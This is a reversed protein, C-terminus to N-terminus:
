SGDSAPAVSESAENARLRAVAEDMSHGPWPNTEVEHIEAPTLPGGPPPAIEGSDIESEIGKEFGVEMKDTEYQEVSANHRERRIPHWRDPKSAATAEREADAQTAQELQVLEADEKKTWAGSADVPDESGRPVQNNDTM